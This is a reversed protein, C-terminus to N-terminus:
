KPEGYVEPKARDRRKSSNIVIAVGLGVCLIVLAYPVVYPPTKEAPEQGPPQAWVAASSALWFAVALVFGGLARWIGALRNMTRKDERHRFGNPPDPQYAVRWQLGGDLDPFGRLRFALSPLPTLLMYQPSQPSEALNLCRGPREPSPSASAHIECGANQRGKGAAIRTDDAVNDMTRGLTKGPSEAVIGKPRRRIIGEM